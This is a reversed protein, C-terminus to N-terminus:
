SGEGRDAPSQALGLATLWRRARRRPSRTKASGGHTGTRSAVASHPSALPRLRAHRTGERRRTGPGDATPSILQDEDNLVVGLAQLQHPVGQLDLAVLGDLSM